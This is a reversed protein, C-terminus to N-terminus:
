FYKVSGPHSDRKANDLQWDVVFHVPNNQEKETTKIEVISPGLFFTETSQSRQVSDFNRKTTRKIGKMVNKKPHSFISCVYFIFVFCFDNKENMEQENQEKVSRLLRCELVMSGVLASCIVFAVTM